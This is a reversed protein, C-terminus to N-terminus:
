LITVVQIVFENTRKTRESRRFVYDAQLRVRESASLLNIGILVASSKGADGRDALYEWRMVPQVHSTVRYSLLAYGGEDRQPAPSRRLQGLWEGEVVTAGVVWRTDFGWFRASGSKAVNASFAAFSIPLVTLRGVVLERGETNVSDNPRLGNFVAGVVIISGFPAIQGLLGLDSRFSLRLTADARKYTQLLTTPTIAELAYPVPLQGFQILPRFIRKWETSDPLEAQVFAATLEFPTVSSDGSLGGIGFLGVQIRASLYPEPRGQVAIRVSSLSFRLTDSRATARIGFDATLRLDDSLLSLGVDGSARPTYQGTLPKAVAFGLILYCFCCTVDARLRLM